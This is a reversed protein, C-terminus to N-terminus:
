RWAAVAEGNLRVGGGPLARIQWSRFRILPADRELRDVLAVVSKDAGSLRVKALVVGGKAPLPEAGEVLVGDSAALTRIRGIVARAAEAEDKGIRLGAALLPPPPASPQVAAAEANARVARARALDSLATGTPQVLLLIAVLGGGMGTLITARNM